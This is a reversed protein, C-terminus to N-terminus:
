RALFVLNTESSGDLKNTFSVPVPRVDEFVQQLAAVFTVDPSGSWVALVGGPALHAKAKRLNPVAYFPNPWTGLPDDPAHDVDVLIVDLPRQPPGALIAYADGRTIEFRLDPLLESALPTLGRRMWGIVAPLLEVVEVHRAKGTCLAAHATHGLGLGGVWVDLDTGGHLEIALEALQRESDATESSMLFRHDITIETVMRGDPLPQRRLALLGLETEVADLYEPWEPTPLAPEASPHARLFRQIVAAFHVPAEVALAHGADAFVEHTVDAYHPQLAARVEDPTFPPDDHAGTLALVPVARPVQGVVAETAYMAVYARVAGHRASEAWRSLRFEAWTPGLRAAFRDFLADRREGEGDLGQLWAVVHPPAGMGGPPIPTALILTAVRDPRDAAVQQAVLSSMSHGVLHFREWGLHDALELVDAAAETLDYRGTLKRSHGYGRLDAFVFTFVHPDVFPWIGDYGHHDAFWEHLVLVREPGGGTREHGLVM